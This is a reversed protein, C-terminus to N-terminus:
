EGLAIVWPLWRRMGQTAMLNFAAPTIGAPLALTPLAELLWDDFGSPRHGTELCRCTTDFCALWNVSSGPEDAQASRLSFQLALSFLCAVDDPVETLWGTAFTTGYGFAAALFGLPEGMVQHTQALVCSSLVLCRAHRIRPLDHATLVQGAGLQLGPTATGALTQGGHGMGLLVAVGDVSRHVPDLLVTEVGAGSWLSQSLAAEVQVWPLPESSPGPMALCWAPRLGPATAPMTDAQRLWAGVSPYQVLRPAQRWSKALLSRWPLMHLDDSPLLVLADLAPEDLSQVLAEAVADALSQLVALAFGYRDTATVTMDSDAADAARRMSQPSGPERLGRRVLALWQDCAGDALPSELRLARWWAQLDGAPSLRLVILLLQDPQPRALLCLATGPVLRRALAAADARGQQPLLGERVLRAREGDCRDRLARWEAPANVSDGEPLMSALAGAARLLPASGGGLKPLGSLLEQEIRWLQAQLAAFAAVQPDASEALADRQARLGRTCLFWDALLMAAGPLQRCHQWLGNVSHLLAVSHATLWAPDADGLLGALWVLLHRALRPLLTDLGAVPAELSHWRVACALAQDLQQLPEGGLPHARRWTPALRDGLGALADAVIAADVRGPSRRVLTDIMKLLGALWAQAHQLQGLAMLAAYSDLALGAQVASAAVKGDAALAHAWVMRANALDPRLHEAGNALRQEFVGVALQCRKAALAIRQCALLLQADNVWTRAADDQLVPAPVQVSAYYRRARGLWRAAMGYDAARFHAYGLNMWTCARSASLRGIAGGRRRIRRIQSDYVVLAQGFAAFAEPFRAMSVLVGGLNMLARGLDHARPACGTAIQGQAAEIVLRYHRRAQALDGQAWLANGLNLRLRVGDRGLGRLGPRDLRALAAQNLRIAEDHQGAISLNAALIAEARLVWLAHNVADSVGVTQTLIQLARRALVMAQAADARWFALRAGCLAQRALLAALVAPGLSALSQLLADLRALTSESQVMEDAEIQCEVLTLVIEALLLTDDAARVAAAGMLGAQAAPLLVDIAKEFQEQAQWHNACILVSLWSDSNVAVTSASAVPEVRHWSWGLPCSHVSAM